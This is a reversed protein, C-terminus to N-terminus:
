NDTRRQLVSFGRQPRRRKEILRLIVWCTPLVALPLGLLAGLWWPGLSVIVHPGWCPHEIWIWNIEVETYIFLVLSISALLNFVTRKLGPALDMDGIDAPRNESPYVSLTVQHITM